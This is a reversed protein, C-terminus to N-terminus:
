RGKTSYLLVLLESQLQNRSPYQYLTVDVMLDKRGCRSLQDCLISMTASVFQNTDDAVLDSIAVDFSDITLWKGVIQGRKNKDFEEILMNITTLPNLRVATVKSQQKSTWSLFIQENTSQYTGM